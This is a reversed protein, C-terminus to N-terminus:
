KENTKINDEFGIARDVIYKPREKVEQYIRGVYEGLIGICVLQIGGMFFIIIVITPNGSSFPVGAFKLIAYLVGSLFSLAAIIFGFWSSIRLPYDSFGVIGTVANMLSGFMRNYNGLGSFRAPRDFQIETQKFGVLAILGRIFGHSEKFRSIEDVVRRSLVCYHGTNRPIPPEAIRNIVAYFMYAALRRTLTEGQRNLRQARVVDFGEKWKAIMKPILEPPDQMDVDMLAVVSGTSYRLGGLSAMDQGVRRSFKILKINPNQKNAEAIVEESRDPSPDLAFIIEYDRSVSLAIPEVRKLFEPINKEEKYVPVVISLKIKDSPNPM